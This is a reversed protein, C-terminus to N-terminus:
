YSKKVVIYRHDHNIFFVDDGHIYKAIHLPLNGILNEDCVKNKFILYPLKEDMIM